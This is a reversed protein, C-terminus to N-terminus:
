QLCDVDRRGGQGHRRADEGGVLEDHRSDCSKEIRARRRYKPPRVHHHVDIRGATAGAGAGSRGRWRRRVDRRSAM